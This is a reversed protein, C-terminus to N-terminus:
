GGGPEPRCDSWGVEPMESYVRVHDRGMMGVSLLLASM